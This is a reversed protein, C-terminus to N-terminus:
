GTTQRRPVAAGSQTSDNGDIAREIKNTQYVPMNTTIAQTAASKGYTAHLDVVRWWVEKAQDNVVKIAKAEVPSGLKVTQSKASTIDGM